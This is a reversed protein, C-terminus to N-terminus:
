CCYVTKWVWKGFKCTLYHRWWVLKKEQSVPTWLLNCAFHIHQTDTQVYWWFGCALKINWLNQFLGWPTPDRNPQHDAPQVTAWFLAKTVNILLLYKPYTPWGVLCKFVTFIPGTGMKMRTAFMGSMITGAVTKNELSNAASCLSLSAYFMYIYFM